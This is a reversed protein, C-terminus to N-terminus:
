RHVRSSFFTKCHSNIFEMLDNFAAKRSDWKFLDHPAKPYVKITVDKEHNKKLEEAWAINRPTDVCNDNEGQMFLIPLNDPVLDISNVVKEMSWLASALLKASMFPNLHPNVRAVSKYGEPYCSADISLGSNIKFKPNIYYFTKIAATQIANPGRGDETTIWPAHPIIGTVESLLIPNKNITLYLVTLGGLSHGMLFIPTEKYCQRAYKILEVAEDSIDYVTTVEGDSFGNGAHDTAIASGGLSPFVRLFNANFEVNSCLGHLFLLIFKPEDTCKWHCGRIITKKVTLEFCEGDLETSWNTDNIDM